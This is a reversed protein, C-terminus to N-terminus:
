PQVLEAGEVGTGVCSNERGSEFLDGATDIDRAAPALDHGGESWRVLETVGTRRRSRGSAVRRPATPARDECRLAPRPGRRTAEANTAPRTPTGTRSGPAAEASGAGVGLSCDRGTPSKRFESPTLVWM